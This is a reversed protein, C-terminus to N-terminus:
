DLQNTIKRAMGGFIFLHFPYVAYWYLRGLLGLPRFTATQILIKKGERKEVKFELWAEGPLKMEAYLLLRGNKKDADLVRWFDLADGRKLDNPSRRGRRLGVGGFIQDIFGRLSWLFNAYYWGRDGGIRWINDIVKDSPNKFELEQRDKFCGYTPAELKKLFVERLESDQFSDKWSSIIEGNKVKVLTRKLSEEYDLKEIRLLNDIDNNECVADNKLSDVLNTALAYSTSTVFYLWKSSLKPTLVPVTIIWRRLKRTKAFGLLMQKYTLVDSGGIDFSKNFSEKNGIIGTLYELANAIGIPQCKSNVWKPAVMIPLKEVLDRIIEFSASGSGIVIGARLVTLPVKSESLIDEVKKRSRLHESLDEDNVIGSLYIVQKISSQDLYEKFIDAIQSEHEEFKGSGMTLSHVLYYAYDIDEPFSKYVEKNGLDAEIVNIRNIEEEDFDKFDFRSKVRVPCVVEYGKSLLIPLIRRGIYGTSGTLLIKTM